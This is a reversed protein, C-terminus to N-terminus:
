KIAPHRTAIYLQQDADHTITHQHELQKLYSEIKFRSILRPKKFPKQIIAFDGPIGYDILIGHENESKKAM